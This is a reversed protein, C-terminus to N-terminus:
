DDALYMLVPVQAMTLVRYATSGPAGSRDAHTRRGLVLVPQLGAAPAVAAALREAVRGSEVHLAIPVDSGVHHLASALEAKAAGTQERQAADAHSSWRALVPLPPVVHVADVSTALLVALRCAARTAAIAPMSQDLGAVIPGLGTLDPLDPRPPTWTHPVVLVSTDAKRLVGETTSGFMAREVGSMGHMALVIVDARERQAIDAIVDVANGAVVHLRPAPAGAPVASATLTKLEDLTEPALDVGTTRAATALLPDQAHLVHLAAGAHVALRAAFGIAVRSPDSFDTATLVIRPPFM